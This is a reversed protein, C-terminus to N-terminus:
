AKRQLEELGKRITEEVKAPIEALEARSLGATQVPPHVIIDIKTGFHYKM